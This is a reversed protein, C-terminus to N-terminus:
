ISNVHNGLFQDNKLKPLINIVVVVFTWLLKVLLDVLQYPFYCHIMEIIVCTSSVLKVSDNYMGSLRKIIAFEKIDFIVGAFSLQRAM